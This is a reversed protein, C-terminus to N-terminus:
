ASSSLWEIKEELRELRERIDKLQGDYGYSRDDEADADFEPTQIALNTVKAEKVARLYDDISNM